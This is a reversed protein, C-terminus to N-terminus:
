HKFLLSFKSHSFCYKLFGPHLNGLGPSKDKKLYTQLKYNLDGTIPSPFGNNSIDDIMKSFEINNEDTVIDYRYVLGVLLKDQSYPTVECKSNVM